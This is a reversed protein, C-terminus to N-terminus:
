VGGWFEVKIVYDLLLETLTVRWCEKGGIFYGVAVIEYRDDRIIQGQASHVKKFLELIDDESSILM